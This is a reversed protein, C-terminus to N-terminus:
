RAVAVGCEPCIGSVNGTLDYECQLCRGLRRLRAERRRRRRQRDDTLWALSYGWVFSNIGIMACGVVVGLTTAGGTLPLICPLAIPLSLFLALYATLPGSPVSVVVVWLVANLIALWGGRSPLVVIPRQHSM